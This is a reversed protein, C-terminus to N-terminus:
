KAKKLSKRKIKSKKEGEVKEMEAKVELLKDGLKKLKFEQLSM